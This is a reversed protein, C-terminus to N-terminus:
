KIILIRGTYHTVFKREVIWWLKKNTYVIAYDIDNNGKGPQSQQDLISYRMIYLSNIAMCHM